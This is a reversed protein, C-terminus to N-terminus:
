HVHTPQFALPLELTPPTDLRTCLTTYIVRSHYLKFRSMYPKLMQFLAAWYKQGYMCECGWSQFGVCHANKTKMAITSVTSYAKEKDGELSPVPWAVELVQTTASVPGAM